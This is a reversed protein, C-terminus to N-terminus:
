AESMTDDIAKVLEGKMQEHDIYNQLFEHHEPHCFIRVKAISQQANNKLQTWVQSEELSGTEVEDVKYRRRDEERLYELETDSGEKEPPVDVLLLIKDGAESLFKNKADASVVSTQHSPNPNTGVLDVVRQQFREQLARMWKWTPRQGRRFDHLRQWIAADEKRGPSFVAVRKYLCRVKLLNLLQRGASPGREAIWELVALDGRDIQSVAGASTAFADESFLRQQGSMGRLSVFARFENRLSTRSPDDKQSALAEWVIRHISAKISRYTHHWYVQGYMAYRAFSIAEAPIKGKEHIGLAAFTPGFPAPGKKFVITLVRLLRELDVAKGYTLGLQISDRILYDIKDADIPGDILSHLIRDKLTGSLGTVKPEAELISIVRAVPLDWEEQILKALGIQDDKLISFGLKVHSFGEKDAEELDHALPYQGVDHVLASVLAARLDSEDMIQKFLPNLADNYLAIVYRCLVSFSGLSHELRTHTATPYVLNLLGLQTTSGLRMIAPHKLLRSIRKTFPTSALTSVQITEQLHINLEPIRAELNYSGLLKELDIRAQTITEYKIEKFTEISLGIAREEASNEGDLLRCSLLKLYRKRYPTLAKPNNEELVNLLKLFTKGLSFLDWTPKLDSRKAHGRLRNPDSVAEQVFKRAQPHIFGETGGILTEGSQTKLEKAFGLDSLIAHGTPTVLVNGPKLDMHVTEQQHLYEVGNLIGLFVGLIQHETRNEQKLYVNSDLVGDIYDMVYYPHKKGDHEAVGKAYIKILNQHSLRLLKETEQLLITALLEEKSPSPRSIKLARVVNLNKDKTKAVIGGGGVAFPDLLEYNFSLANIIYPLIVELAASEYEWYQHLNINEDYIRKLKGLFGEVFSESM